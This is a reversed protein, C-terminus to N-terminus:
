FKNINKKSIIKIKIKIPLLKYPHAIDWYMGYPPNLQTSGVNFPNFSISSVEGM